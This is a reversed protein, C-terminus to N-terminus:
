QRVVKRAAKVALLALHQDVPNSFLEKVVGEPDRFYEIVKGLEKLLEILEGV